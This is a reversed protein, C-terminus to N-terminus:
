SPTGSYRILKHHGDIHWLANPCPVTYKRRKITRLQLSRDMIGMPDIRMMSERVRTVGIRLGNSKLHGMMQKYGTNPFQRLIDSVHQDLEDDTLQTYYSGVALDYASMRNRITRVSVCLMEAIEPVSFNKGLLGDLTEMPIDFSPRGRTLLSDSAPHTNRSEGHECDDYFDQLLNRTLVIQTFVAQSVHQVRSLRILMSHIWDLRYVITDLTDVTPVGDDLLRIIEVARRTLTARVEEVELDGQFM